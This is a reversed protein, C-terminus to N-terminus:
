IQPAPHRRYSEHLHASSAAGHHRGLHARRFRARGLDGVHLDAGAAGDVPRAANQPGGRRVGGHRDHAAARDRGAGQCPRHDHGTLIGPLALPLVHHTIAQMKSAGVGLAAERISPPVAGIAARTAIIITPLTMLALVLGGVISASRPLGVFNIFIALGLLGFVISPVAALNNINVEILDTWFNKRAFEELYVAAAVGLPVALVLVMIMMFLSGILAVGIGATEPNSSAGNTFLGTNFRKELVGAATAKDIWDVQQDSLKRTEPPLKRDLQGKLLRTSVAARSCGSRCRRASSRAPRSAGVKRIEVDVDKSLLAGVESADAAQEGSRRRAGECARPAGAVPLRGDAAREARAHGFSRHRRPDLAVNLKFSSQLFATYGKSIISTFLIALFALGFLIAAIGYLRFRREAAYRRAIGRKVEAQPASTRVQDPSPATAVTM